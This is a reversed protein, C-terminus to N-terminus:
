LFNLKDFRIFVYICMFIDLFNWKRMVYGNILFLYIIMYIFFICIFNYLVLRLDRVVIEVRVEYIM